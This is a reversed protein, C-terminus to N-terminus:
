IGLAKLVLASLWSISNGVGSKKAIKAQAATLPFNTSPNLNVPVTEKVHVLGADKVEQSLNPVHQNVVVVGQESLEPSVVPELESSKIFTSVPEQEKQLSGVTPVPQATLNPNNQNQNANTDDM